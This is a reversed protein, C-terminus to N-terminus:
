LAKREEERSRKYQRQQCDKPNPPMEPGVLSSPDKTEPPSTERERERGVPPLQSSDPATKQKEHKLNKVATQTPTSPRDPPPTKGTRDPPWPPERDPKDQRWRNGTPPTGNAENSCQMEGPTARKCAAARLPSRGDETDNVREPTKKSRSQARKPTGRTFRNAEGSVAKCGRNKDTIGPGWTRATSANETGHGTPRKHTKGGIGRRGHTRNFDRSTSHM